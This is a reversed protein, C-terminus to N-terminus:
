VSWSGRKLPRKEQKCSDNNKLLLHPPGRCDIPEAITWLTIISHFTYVYAHNVQGDEQKDVPTSLLFLLRHIKHALANKKQFSASAFPLFFHLSLIGIKLFDNSKLRTSNTEQM